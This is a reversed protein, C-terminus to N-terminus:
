HVDFLENSGGSRTQTTSKPIDPDLTGTASNPPLEEQYQPPNPPQRSAPATVGSKRYIFGCSACAKLPHKSAGCAPCPSHGM